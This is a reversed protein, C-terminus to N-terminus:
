IKHKSESSLNTHKGPEKIYKIRGRNKMSAVYVCKGALPGNYESSISQKSRSKSVNTYARVSWNVLDFILLKILKAPKNIFYAM